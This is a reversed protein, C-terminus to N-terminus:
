WTAMPEVFVTKGAFEALTFTEGTRVDVIPLIALPAATYEITPAAEQGMLITLPWRPAGEATCAAAAFVLALLTTIRRMMTM